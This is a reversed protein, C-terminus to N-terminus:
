SLPIEGDSCVIKTFPTNDRWELGFAIENWQETTGGYTVTNLSTCHAFVYHSIIEVAEPVTVSTLGFCSNFASQSITKLSAPLVLESIGACSAFASSGIYTM